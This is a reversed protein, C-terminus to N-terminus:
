SEDDAADRRTRLEHLRAKLRAEFGSETPEYYRAGRLADPLYTVEVFQDPYDHPYQYDRGRGLSKMLATPASLIHPPIGAAPHRLVDEKAARIARLAANSKPAMALYTTVQSLAYVGEPMGVMDFAQQAAVAMQLARPDANGIDESAFIILRRLIFRVDEGGELMRALYHLAADPDSGRLSKILASAVDYHSDGAKDFLVVRRAVAEEAHRLAIAQASDALALDAAIELSSLTRRADGGAARILAERADDDLVLGTDGLGRAEDNLARDILSSLSADDLARLVLVRCRSLLAANVEFSPNETTAGVLTVVGKEVHPLLADQQGKNFRHIEDVFLLTGRRQEARARRAQEVAARLDKVGALVASIREFRMDLSRGLVEALTTKGTGPPGWFILSPLRGRALQKPLFAGDGVLHQQGFVDELTHPRMREALPAGSLDRDAATEFLDM